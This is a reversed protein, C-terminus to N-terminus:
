GENVVGVYSIGFGENAREESISKRHFAKVVDEFSGELIEFYYVSGSPVYKRMPKPKKKKMDFGGIFIPKGVAATLLKLKIKEHEGELTNENIWSPLSGKEFYCPTSLYLKFLRRNPTSNEFKPITEDDITTYNVIKSEAGLKLFGEKPLNLGEYQFIFKITKIEKNKLVSPRILNVRYLQGEKSTKSSDDRGIGIKPERVYYKTLQDPNYEKEEKNLYGELSARTIYGNELPELVKYKLDQSPVLIKSFLHNDVFYTEKDSLTLLYAKDEKSKKESHIDLPLPYQIDDNINLAFGLIQLNKTPDNETNAKSFEQPHEAFYKTRLAGYFVSPPPPFIGDAWTEEGMSFPKGDRFFLTDIAEIKIVPM